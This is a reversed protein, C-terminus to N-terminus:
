LIKRFEFKDLIKGLKEELRQIEPGKLIKEPVRSVIDIREKPFNIKGDLISQSSQM